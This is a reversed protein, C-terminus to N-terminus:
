LMRHNNRNFLVSQLENKCPIRYPSLFHIHYLNSNKILMFFIERLMDIGQKYGVDTDQLIM